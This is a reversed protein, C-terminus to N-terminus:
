KNLLDEEMAKLAVKADSYYHFNEYKEIMKTNITKTSKILWIVM